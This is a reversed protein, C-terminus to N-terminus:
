NYSSSIMERGTLPLILTSIAGTEQYHINTTDNTVQQTCNKTFLLDNLVTIWQQKEYATEAALHYVREMTCVDFVFKHGKLSKQISVRTCTNLNIIGAAIM